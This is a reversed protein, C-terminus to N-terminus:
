LFHFDERSKVFITVMSYSPWGGQKNARNTVENRGCVETDFLTTDSIEM